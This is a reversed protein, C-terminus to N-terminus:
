KGMDVELADFFSSLRKRLRRKPKHENREWGRVTDTDVGLRKALAKLSLGNIRRYQRIKGGLSDDPEVELQYGIFEIIKPIARITPQRRGKEWNAVANTSAWYREPRGLPIDSSWGGSRSM